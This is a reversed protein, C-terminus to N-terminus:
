LNLKVPTVTATRNLAQTPQQVDHAHPFACSSEIVFL